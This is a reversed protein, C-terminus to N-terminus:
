RSQKGSQKLGDNEGWVQEMVHYILWISFHSNTRDEVVMILNELKTPLFAWCSNVLVESALYKKKKCVCLTYHAQWLIFCM